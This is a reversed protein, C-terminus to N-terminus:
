HLKTHFVDGLIGEGGNLSSEDVSSPDLSWRGALFLLKEANSHHTEGSLDLLSPVEGYQYCRMGLDTEADTVTGQNWLTEGAWAYGRRIRGDEARVWAHYNVARNASFFQVHGLSRSLNALFLYCRDVDESPEPLGQGIVLIWGNIPPSIFLSHHIVRSLGEAWSCRTVNRVGLANQVAALSTTRIALWRCTSEFAPSHYLIRAEAPKDPSNSGCTRDRVAHRRAYSIVCLSLTGAILLVTALSLLLLGATIQSTSEPTM